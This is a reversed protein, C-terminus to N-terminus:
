KTYFKGVGFGGAFALFATIILHLMNENEILFIIIFVLFALVLIFMGLNMLRINGREKRDRKDQGESNNIIATIHDPSVKEYIPNTERTFSAFMKSRIISIVRHREEEPIAELFEPPIDDLEDSHNKEELDKKVPLKKTEKNQKKAM